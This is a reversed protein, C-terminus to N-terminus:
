IPRCATQADLEAFQAYHAPAPQKLDFPADRQEISFPWGKTGVQRGASCRTRRCDLIGGRIRRAADKVLRARHSPQDPRPDPLM